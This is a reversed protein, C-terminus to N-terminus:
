ARDLDASYRVHRPDLADILDCLLHQVDRLRAHAAEQGLEAQLRRRWPGFVDDCHDRFSAYGMCHTHGNAEVIMQEGLGRQEDSWIM